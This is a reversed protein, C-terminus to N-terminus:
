QFGAQLTIEPRHRTQWQQRRQGNRREHGVPERAAVFADPLPSARDGPAIREKLKRKGMWEKLKRKGM